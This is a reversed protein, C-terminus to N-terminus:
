RASSDLARRVAVRYAAQRSAVPLPFTELPGDLHDEGGWLTIEHAGWAVPSFGTAFGFIEDVLPDSSFALTVHPKFEPWKRSFPVGAETYAQQLEGQLTHLPESDVRCVIPTGKKGHAFVGIRSTTLLFPRTSLAVRRTAQVAKAYLDPTLKEGLHLLTVHAEDRPETEGYREYDSEWFDWLIRATEPPVRLGLM